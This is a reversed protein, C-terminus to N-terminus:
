VAGFIWPFLNKLLRSFFGRFLYVDKPMNVELTAWTSEADHTDKAKLRITYTGKKAWMHSVRINEGSTYPGIWKADSCNDCWEVWFYVNDGEPDVASLNYTYQTNIKGSSPGTITPTNPPQNEGPLIAITLDDTGTHGDNDTVMLLVVYCGPQTYIHSPNQESSTQQDGFNWEWTYPKKGGTALGVFQVPNGAVGTCPGSAEVTVNSSVVNFTTDAKIDFAYSHASALYVGIVAESDLAYTFSYNGCSNTIGCTGFVLNGETDNVSVCLPSSPVGYGNNMIRGYLTVTEGPYYEQQDTHITIQHEDIKRSHVLTTTVILTMVLLM